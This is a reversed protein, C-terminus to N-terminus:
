EVNGIGKKQFYVCKGIDDLEVAPTFWTVGTKRLQERFQKIAEEGAGYLCASRFNNVCQGANCKM